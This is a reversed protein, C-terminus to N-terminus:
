DPKLHQKFCRMVKEVWLRDQDKQEETLKSYPKGLSRWRELRVQSINEKSAIDKSWAMWQEHELEALQEFLNTMTRM